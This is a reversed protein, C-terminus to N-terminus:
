INSFEPNSLYSADLKALCTNNDLMIKLSVTRFTAFVLGSKM